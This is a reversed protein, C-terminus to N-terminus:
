IHTFNRFCYIGELSLVPTVLTLLLWGAATSLM